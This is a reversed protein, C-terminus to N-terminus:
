LIEEFSATFVKVENWIFKKIKIKVKWSVPFFINIKTSSLEANSKGLKHIHVHGRSREWQPFLWM